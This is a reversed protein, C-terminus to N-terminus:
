KCSCALFNQKSSNLKFVSELLFSLGKIHKKSDMLLVEVYFFFCGLTWLIGGSLPAIPWMCFSSALLTKESVERAESEPSEAWKKLLEKDDRVLWM